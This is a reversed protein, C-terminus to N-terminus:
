IYSYVIDLHSSRLGYPGTYYYLITYYITCKGVFRPRSSNQFYLLSYSFVHIHIFFICYYIFLLFLIFSFLLGLFFAFCHSMRIRERSVLLIFFNVIEFVCYAMTTSNKNKLKRLHRPCFSYIDDSSFLTSKLHV